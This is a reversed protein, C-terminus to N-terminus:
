LEISPFPLPSQHVQDNEAITHINSSFEALFYSDTSRFTTKPILAIGPFYSFLVGLISKRQLSYDITYGASFEISLNWNDTLQDITVDQFSHPFM